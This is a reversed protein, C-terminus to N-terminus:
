VFNILLDKLIIDKTKIIFRGQHIKYSLIYISKHAVEPYSSLIGLYTKKSNIMIKYIGYM